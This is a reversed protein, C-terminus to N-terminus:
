KKLLYLIGGSLERGNDMKQSMKVKLNFAKAFADATNIQEDTLWGTYDLDMVTTEKAM